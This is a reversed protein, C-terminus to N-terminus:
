CKALEARRFFKIWGCASIFVMIAGFIYLLSMVVSLFIGLRDFSTKSPILFWGIWIILTVLVFSTVAKIIHPLAKFRRFHVFGVALSILSAPYAIMLWLTCYPPLAVSATWGIISLSLVVIALLRPPIPRRLIPVARQNTSHAPAPVAREVTHSKVFTADGTKNGCEPCQGTAARLDYGCSRCLGNRKRHNIQRRRNSRAYLWLLPFFSSTTVVFWLPILLHSESGVFQSNDDGSSSQIWAWTFYQFTLWGKSIDQRHMQTEWGRALPTTYSWPSRVPPLPNFKKFELGSLDLQVTYTLNPLPPPRLKTGAPTWQYSLPAQFGFDSMMIRAVTSARGIWM